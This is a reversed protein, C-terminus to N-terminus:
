GWRVIRQAMGLVKQVAPEGEKQGTVPALIGALEASRAPGIGGVREAFEVVAEQETAKLSIPIKVPEAEPLGAAAVVGRGGRYVVVTDGALDGLRQFRGSVVMAAIGFVYGVPLMDAVRVLNRVIAGYWGVPTGDRHVVQIGLAMKGPTRGQNLVEFVPNYVWIAVFSMVLILGVGIEELFLLVIAAVWLVVGKLMWDVVWAGFRPLIGALDLEFAVAEPTEVAVRNDVRPLTETVM